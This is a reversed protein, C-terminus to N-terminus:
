NTFVNDTLRDIGLWHATIDWLAAAEPAHPRLSEAPTFAPAPAATGKLAATLDGDSLEPALLAAACVAVRSLARRLDTWSFDQRFLHERFEDFGEVVERLVDNDTDAPPEPHPVVCACFRLTDWIVTKIDHSTRQLENEAELCSTFSQRINGLRPANRSLLDVDFVHKLRQAAKGKGLPIGLTKPGLVLLKDGLISSVSPVTVETGSHYLPDCAVPKRTTEYASAKLQCDLMILREQGDIVSEFYLNYSVLPIWPKTKHPRYEYHSFVPHDKVILAVCETIREKSEPTSIDVDISFRRPNALLVLLSNGGKFMFELGSLSLQRVLELSLFAQESLVLPTDQRNAALHDRTYKELPNDSM